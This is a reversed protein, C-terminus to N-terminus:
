VKKKRSKPPDFKKRDPNLPDFKKTARAEHFTGGRCMFLSDQRVEQTVLESDRNTGTTGISCLNVDRKSVPSLLTNISYM